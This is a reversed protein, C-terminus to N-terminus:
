IRMCINLLLLDIDNNCGYNSLLLPQQKNISKSYLVM